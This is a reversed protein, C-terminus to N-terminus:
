EPRYRQRALVYHLNAFARSRGFGHVPCFATRHAAPVEYRVEQGAAGEARLLEPLAASARGASLSGPSLIIGTKLGEPLFGSDRSDFYLPPIGIVQRFTVHAQRPRTCTGTSLSSRDGKRCGDSSPCQTMAVHEAAPGKKEAARTRLGTTWLEM